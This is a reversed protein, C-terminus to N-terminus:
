RAARKPLLSRGRRRERESTGGWVGQLDPDAMAFSLCAERVPCRRWCVAKAPRAEQGRTPFFNVGDADRCAGWQMWPPRHVLEAVGVPGDVVDGHMLYELLRVRGVATVFRDHEPGSNPEQREEVVGTLHAPRDLGHRGRYRRCAECRDRGEITPRDCVICLESPEDVTWDLAEM